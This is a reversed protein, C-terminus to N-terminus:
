DGVGVAGAVAATTWLPMISFKRRQALLNLSGPANEGVGVVLDDGGRGSM